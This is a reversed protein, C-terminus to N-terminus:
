DNGIPIVQWPTSDRRRREAAALAVRGFCSTRRHLGENGNPEMGQARLQLPTEWLMAQGRSPEAPRGEIWGCSRRYAVMHVEAGCLRAAVAQNAGKGGFGLDFHTGFITEGPRPFNDTFTVLDINASGVVAIHKRDAM